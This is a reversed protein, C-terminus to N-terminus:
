PLRKRRLGMAILGAGLLLLTGPESVRKPSVAVLESTAFALADGGFIDGIAFLGCFEESECPLFSDGGVAVYLFGDDIIDDLLALFLIGEDETDIFGSGIEYALLFEGDEIDEIDIAFEVEDDVLIELMFGTVEGEDSSLFGDEDLDSGFFMGGISLDFDDPFLECIDDDDESFGDFCEFGGQSFNYGIPGANTILPMFLLAVASFLLKKYTTM